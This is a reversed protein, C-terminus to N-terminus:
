AVKVAENPRITASTFLVRSILPLAANSCANAFSQRALREKRDMFEDLTGMDAMRALSREDTYHVNGAAIQESLFTYTAKAETRAKAALRERDVPNNLAAYYATTDLAQKVAGETTFIATANKRGVKTVVALRYRGHGRILVMDGPWLTRPDTIFPGDPEAGKPLCGINALAKAEASDPGPNLHRHTTM